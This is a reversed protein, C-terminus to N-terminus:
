CHESQAAATEEIMSSMGAGLSTLISVFGPGTDGDGSGCCTTMEDPESVETKSEGSCTAAIEGASEAGNFRLARGDGGAGGVPAAAIGTAVLDGTREVVAGSGAVSDGPAATSGGFSLM